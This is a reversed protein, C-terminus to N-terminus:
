GWPQGCLKPSWYAQVVRGRDTSGRDPPFARGWRLTTRCGIPAHVQAHNRCGLLPMSRHMTGACLCSCPGTCPGSSPSTWTPHGLQPGIVLFMVVLIVVLMVLYMHPVHRPVQNRAGVPLHDPTRVPLHDPTHVPTLPVPRILPVPHLAVHDAKFAKTLSSKPLAYFVM